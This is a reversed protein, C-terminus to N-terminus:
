YIELNDVVRYALFIQALGSFLMVIGLILWIVSSSHAGPELVSSEPKQPNYYINVEAEKPYKSLVQNAYDRNATNKSAFTILDNTYNEDDVAYTYKVIPVYSTMTSSRGSGSSHTSTQVDEFSEVVVGQVSPWSESAKADRTHGYGFVVALVGILVGLVGFVYLILKLIMKKM